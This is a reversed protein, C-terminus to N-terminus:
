KRRGGLDGRNEVDYRSSKNSKSCKRAEGGGEGIM